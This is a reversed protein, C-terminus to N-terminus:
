INPFRLHHFSNFHYWHSNELSYCIIIIQVTFYAHMKSINVNKSFEMEGSIPQKDSCYNIIQVNDTFAFACSSQSNLRAYKCLYSQDITRHKFIIFLERRISVPTSVTISFALSPLFGFNISNELPNMQFSIIILKWCPCDHFVSLCANCGCVFKM